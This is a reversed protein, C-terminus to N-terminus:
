LDGRQLWAVLAELDTGVLERDTGRALPEREAGSMRFRWLPHEYAQVDFADAYTIPGRELDARTNGPLLLAVDAGAFARQADM